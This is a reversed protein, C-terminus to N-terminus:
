RDLSGDLRQRGNRVAARSTAAASDASTLSSGLKGGFNRLVTGSGTAAVTTVDSSQSFPQGNAANATILLLGNGVQLTNTGGDIRMGYAGGSASISMNGGGGTRVTTYANASSGVISLGEGPGATTARIDIDGSSSTISVGNNPGSSASRLLVAPSASAASSNGALSLKGSVTSIVTSSTATSPYITIGSGYTSNGALSVSGSGTARIVNNGTLVGVGDGYVSSGTIALAGNEVSILAKGSGYISVGNGQDAASGVLTV